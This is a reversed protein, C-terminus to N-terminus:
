QVSMGLTFFQRQAHAQALLCGMLNRRSTPQPQHRQEGAHHQGQRRCRRVAAAAGDDQLDVARDTWGNGVVHDAFEACRVRGIGSEDHQAHVRGAAEVRRHALDDPVHEGRRDRHGDEDRRAAGAGGAGAGVDEVGARRPSPAPCWDRRRSAPGTRRAPRRCLRRDGSWRRGTRLRWRCRGRGLAPSASPACPTLSATPRCGCGPAAARGCRRIPPSARHALRHAQRGALRQRSPSRGSRRRRAPGAAGARRVRPSRRRCRLAQRGRVRGTSAALGVPAVPQEGDDGIGAERQRSIITPM